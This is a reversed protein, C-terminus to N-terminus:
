VLYPLEVGPERVVQECLLFQHRLMPIPRFHEFAVVTGLCWVSPSLCERGDGLRCPLMEVRGECADM